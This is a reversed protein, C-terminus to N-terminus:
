NAPLQAIAGSDSGVETDVETGFGAADAAAPVVTGAAVETEADVAVAVAVATDVVGAAAVATDVAAASEVQVEPRVVQERERM